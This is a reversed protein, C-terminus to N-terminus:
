GTVLIGIITRNLFSKRPDIAIQISNLIGFYKLSLLKLLGSILILIKNSNKKFLILLKRHLDNFNDEKVTKITQM